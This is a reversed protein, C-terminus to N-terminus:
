FCLFLFARTLFHYFISISFVLLSAVVPSFLLNMWEATFRPNRSYDLCFHCKRYSILCFSSLFSVTTSKSVHKDLPKRRQPWVDANSHISYSCLRKLTPEQCMFLFSAYFLHELCFRVFVGALMALALQTLCCKFTGWFCASVDAYNHSARRYVAQLQADLGFAGVNVGDLVNTEM